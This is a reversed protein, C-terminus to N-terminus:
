AGGAGRRAADLQHKVQAMNMVALALLVAGTAFLAYSVWGPFEALPSGQGVVYRLAGLVPLAVGLTLLIPIVTRKFEVGRLYPERRASAAVGGGGLHRALYDVPPAPVAVADDDTPPAAGLAAAQERLAREHARRAAEAPDVPPAAPRVTRPPAPAAPAPRPAPPVPVIGPVAPRPQPRPSAPPPPPQPAQGAPAGWGPVDDQGADHQPDPETIDGSHLGHLAAALEDPDRDRDPM